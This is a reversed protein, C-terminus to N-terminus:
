PVNAKQSSTPCCAKICRQQRQLPRGLHGLQHGLSVDVSDKMNQPEADRRAATYDAIGAEGNLSEHETMSRSLLDSHRSEGKSRTLM